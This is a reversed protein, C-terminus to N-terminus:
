EKRWTENKKLVKWGRKRNKKKLVKWGRKRKKEGPKM